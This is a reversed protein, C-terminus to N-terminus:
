SSSFPLLFGQLCCNLFIGDEGLAYLFSNSPASAAEELGPSHFPIFHFPFRAKVHHGGKLLTLVVVPVGERVQVFSAIIGRLPPGAHLSRAIRPGSLRSPGPRTIVVMFCGTVMKEGGDVEKKGRKPASFSFVHSRARPSSYLPSYSFSRALSLNVRALL